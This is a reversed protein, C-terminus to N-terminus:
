TQTEIFWRWNRGSWYQPYHKENEDPEEPSDSNMLLRMVTPAGNDRYDLAKRKQDRDM